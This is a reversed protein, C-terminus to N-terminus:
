KGICFKSFIESLIDESINTGIMKGLEQLCRRMDLAIFEPSVATELGEIVLALAKIAASLAEKHRVNTLLVEEKSPPGHIWIVQDITERLKDLGTKEKASLSRFLM